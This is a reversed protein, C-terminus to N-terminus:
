VKWGDDKQPVLMRMATGHLLDRNAAYEQKAARLVSCALDYANRSVLVPKSYTELLERPQLDSGVVMANRVITNAIDSKIKFRSLYNVWHRMAKEHETKKDSFNLSTCLLKKIQAGLTEMDINRSAVNAALSTTRGVLDAGAHVVKTKSSLPEFAVGFKTYVCLAGKIAQGVDERNSFYWGAAFTHRPDHHLDERRSKADIFYLRLERGTVEARYFKASTQKDQLADTVIDFFDTNSLMRHDLGLFGEIAQEQHNVLLTRERLAEFRVRLTTNYISVAAAIDNERNDLDPLRRSVEGSLENFMSALGISLARSLAEFGIPNFRYGTDALRGDGRMILQSEDVIPVCETHEARTALFARCEDAQHSQFFLATVPAFVSRVNHAVRFSM